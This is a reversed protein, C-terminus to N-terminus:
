LSILSKYEEDDLCGRDRLVDILMDVDEMKEMEKCLAVINAVNGPKPRWNSAGNYSAANKMCSLAKSIEKDKVYGEALIEWTIPKPKGGKEVLRDLLAKAKYVLGQRSYWGMLINCIRPDANSTTSLWEEYIDEAKDIDNIRVLSALMAQYGMNLMNPFSSKYWDWVRYVEQKKGLSSYYGLLYNFPTRDRGTVRLELEKLCNEAKEFQGAKIYMTALTSYTTWNPNINSDSIMREMVREMEEIEEMAACNTIWINYSYLDFQINKEKMENIITNVKEHEELNMYLTMMVNYPLADTVYGQAKMTELINEAKEKMKAQGYANLLAGYTRKDKLEDSLSYFYNEAYSIDHVKSILDLQIAMDSSTFTFRDGQATMWEYIELAHKFRRFKRLEKKAVRCLLWKSLRKEEEEECQDLVAGSGLSPNEMTSIRRYLASWKIAPRKEYDVTGYSHVQSISCRVPGFRISESKLIPAPSRFSIPIQSYSSKSTAFNLPNVLPSTPIRLLM